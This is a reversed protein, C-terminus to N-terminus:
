IRFHVYNKEIYFDYQLEFDNTLNVGYNLPDINKLYVGTNIMLNLLFFDLVRMLNM